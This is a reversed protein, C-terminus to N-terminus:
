DNIKTQFDNTPNELAQMASIIRVNIIAHITIKLKPFPNFRWKRLLLRVRSTGVERLVWASGAKRLGFRILMSHCASREFEKKHVRVMGTSSADGSPMKYLTSYLLPINWGEDTVNCPDSM